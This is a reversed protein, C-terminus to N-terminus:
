PKLVPAAAEQAMSLPISAREDPWRRTTGRLDFVVCCGERRLIERYFRELHHKLEGYYDLWWLATEPFVLFGAGKSRLFELHEVAAAGDRPYHGAYVGRDDQPYHWARRGWVKLLEEDGRSTVAVTAGEPVVEAVASRLREVMERYQQKSMVAPVRTPGPPRARKVPKALVSSISELLRERVVDRSHRARMHEQGQRSLREWLPADRLLREISAAFEGADDAVLVNEGHRLGLGEVGVTTSVTPTGLMLAQIIKRKTGAGYLLPVVSVRARELYPLVSPVWGVIQVHPHAGAFARVRDDLANGVLYVPHQALLDQDIRPVIERCLFEAAGVNPPHRFNGIFTIGRRGDRHVESPSLDECDPVVYALAPDDSLDGILDAEKQSVALVGDAAAYANLERIIESGYGADLAAASTGAAGPQGVRAAQFLRRANRVFHLDITDVVVRTEPSLRRVTPMQAEALHWFAFIVLDLRGRVLLRDIREGFGSYVAVGRQQLLHAYREGGRANHAAFSVAWGAEQLLVILDFIRRSGSERDFEPMLPAGILVRKVSM